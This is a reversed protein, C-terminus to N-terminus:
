GFASIKGQSVTEPSESAQAGKSSHLDGWIAGSVSCETATASTARPEASCCVDVSWFQELISVDMMAKKPNAANTVFCSGSRLILAM